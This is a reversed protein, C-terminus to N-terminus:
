VKNVRTAAHKSGKKILILDAKSANEDAKQGWLVFHTLTRLLFRQLQTTEAKM